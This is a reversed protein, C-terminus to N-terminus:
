YQHSFALFCMHTASRWSIVRATLTANFGLVVVLWSSEIETKSKSKNMFGHRFLSHILVVEGSLAFKCQVKHALRGELSLVTPSTQHGRWRSHSYPQLKNSGHTM